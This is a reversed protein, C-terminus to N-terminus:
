ACNKSQPKPRRQRQTSVGEVGGAHTASGGRDPGGGRSKRTPKKLELEKLIENARGRGICKELSSMIFENNQVGSTLASRFAQEAREGQRPHASAYSCLLVNLFYENM